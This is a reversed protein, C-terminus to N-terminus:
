ATSAIIDSTPQDSGGPPEVTVAFTADAVSTDPLFLEVRGNDDPRFIDMREPAEVIRWLEYVDEGEPVPIDDGVLAAAQQDASYVLRLGSLAGTLETTVADDADVVAAIDGGGGDDNVAVVLVGALIALVAAAAAVPAWWRRRRRAARLDVVDGSPPPAAVAPADHAPLQAVGAIAGLVADRLGAPPDEASVEAMAVAAAELEALEVRLDPRDAIAEELAAREPPDLAGVAALALLERLEDDDMGHVGTM